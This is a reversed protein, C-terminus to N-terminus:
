PEVGAIWPEHRRGYRVSLRYPTSDLQPAIEPPVYLSDPALEVSGSLRARSDKPTYILIRVIGRTILHTRANPYRAELTAADVHADVPVLRSSAAVQKRADADPTWQRLNREYDSAWAQWAPGDLELAIYAVRRLARRYHADADPSTPDVSTDFGLSALKDANLWAIQEGWSYQHRIWVSQSSNDASAYRLPLERDTLVMPARGSSRNWASGALTVTTVLLPLVAPLIFRIM